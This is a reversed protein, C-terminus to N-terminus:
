SPVEKKTNIPVVEKANRKDRLSGQLPQPLRSQHRTLRDQSKPSIEYFIDGKLYEGQIRRLSPRGYGGFNDIFDRLGQGALSNKDMPYADAFFSDKSFLQAYHNGDLSKYWVAM